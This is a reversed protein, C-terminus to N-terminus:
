VKNSCRSPLNLITSLLFFTLTRCHMGSDAVRHSNRLYFDCIFVPFAFYCRVTSYRLFFPWVTLFITKRNVRIENKKKKRSLKKKKMKDTDKNSVFLIM